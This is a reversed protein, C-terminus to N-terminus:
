YWGRLPVNTSPAVNSLTSTLRAAPVSNVVGAVAFAAGMRLAANTEGAAARLPFGPAAVWGMLAVAAAGLPMLWAALGMSPGM